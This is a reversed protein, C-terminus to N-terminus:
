KAPCAIACWELSSPRSKFVPDYTALAETLAKPTIEAPPATDVKAGLYGMGGSAVLAHRKSWDCRRLDRHVFPMPVGDIEFEVPETFAQTVCRDICAKCGNECLQRLPGSELVADGVLEADTIISAYRMHPGHKPALLFGGTGIVGLGACAAAFRNSFVDRAPGGRPTAIGGGTGMLDECFVASHGQKDLWKILKLATRALRLSTVYAAFLYPGVAEAPPQGATTVSAEPIPVGIVIVSRADSLYDTPGRVTMKEVTVEPEYPQWHKGADRASLTETDAFLKNLQPKLNEIREAPSIGVVEAGFRRALEKVSETPSSAAPEDDSPQITLDSKLPANTFVTMTVPASNEGDTPHGLAPRMTEQPLDTSVVADYGADELARAARYAGSISFFRAAEHLESSPNGQSGPVRVGVTLGRCANPLHETMDIDFNALTKDDHVLAFDCGALSIRSGIERCLTEPVTELDPNVSKKRRPANTYARDWTRIAAPLCYRLCSGFEGGRTGHKAATELIVEETVHEPKPLDLDLDFHEGWACRWLNKDARTYTHGEIEIDVTGAVEEVLAGSMCHKQCLMCGDCLTNGPLLPTPELEADTIISVFRVRAGFEPTMALGNYGLEALGAAVAAYIHSMDPAFQATLDKYGRYRWINSAAIPVARFGADSIFRAMEYSLEDLLNNM